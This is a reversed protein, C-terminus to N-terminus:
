SASSSVAPLVIQRVRDPDSPLCASGTGLEWCDHQTPLSACANTHVGNANKDRHIQFARKAGNHRLSRLLLVTPLFKTTNQTNALEPAIEKQIQCVDFSNETLDPFCLKLKTWFRTLNPSFFCRCLIVNPKLPPPPHFEFIFRKKKHLFSGNKQPPFSLKM